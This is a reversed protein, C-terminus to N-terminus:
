AADEAPMRIVPKITRGSKMDAEAESIAELPYYRILQDFPFRGARWHEILQPILRQPVSDGQHIGLVSRGGLILSLADFPIPVGNASSVLGLVGRPALAAAAAQITPVHGTTDLARDAGQPLLAALRAALPETRADITDTAGFSRARELRSPDLDVAVIRRADVLRGAMVAAMGVAGAGLVLLTDGAGVKLSDIVAGAGTQLGCGLPGLMELPVDSPVRVLSREHVLAATAFSSQGFFHGHVPGSDDRLATSGDARTGGFNLLGAATCYAPEGRQCSRCRGCSAFSIVVPDGPQVATVAEGVAEVIGAGEHGLVAPKPMRTPSLRMAIDTHCLGTAVIRVRVEDARPAELQLSGLTFPAGPARVIAARIRCATCATM